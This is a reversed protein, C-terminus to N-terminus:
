AHDGDVVDGTRHAQLLGGQGPVAQQQEALLARADGLGGAVPAASVTDIACNPEVRLMLAATAAPIAM